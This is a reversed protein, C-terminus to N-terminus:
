KIIEQVHEEFRDEDPAKLCAKEIDGSHERARTILLRLRDIDGADALQQMRDLLQQYSHALRVSNVVHTAHDVRMWLFMLGAALLATITVATRM